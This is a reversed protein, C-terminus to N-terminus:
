RGSPRFSLLRLFPGYHQQGVGNIQRFSLIDLSEFPISCAPQPPGYSKLRSSFVGETPTLDVSSDVDMKAQPKERRPIKRRRKSRMSKPAESLSDSELTVSAVRNATCDVDSEDDDKKESMDLVEPDISERSSSFISAPTHTKPLLM